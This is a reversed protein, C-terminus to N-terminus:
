FTSSATKTLLFSKSIGIPNRKSRNTGAVFVHYTVADWANHIGVFLLILASAGVAFMAQHANTITTYASVALTAYAARVTRVHQM